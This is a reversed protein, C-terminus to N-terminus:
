FQLGRARLAAELQAAGTFHLAGWGQAAAAEVNNRRDDVFILDGPSAGLTSTVVEYAEAAPKRLGQPAGPRATPLPLPSSTNAPLSCAQLTQAETAAKGGFAM